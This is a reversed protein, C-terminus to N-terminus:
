LFYKGRHKYSLMMKFRGWENVHGEVARRLLNHDQSAGIFGQTQNWGLARCVGTNDYKNGLAEWSSSCQDGLLIM